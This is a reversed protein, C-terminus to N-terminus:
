EAPTALENRVATVGATETALADARSRHGATPVVGQLRVEGATAGPLVRVEAGAMAKDTIIRLRVKEEVPLANGPEFAAFPGAIVSASPLAAQVKAGSVRGVRALVETDSAKGGLLVGSLVGLCLIAGVLKSKV